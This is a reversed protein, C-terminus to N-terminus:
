SREEQALRQQNAWEARLIQRRTEIDELFAYVGAARDLYRIRQETPRAPDLAITMNNSFESFAHDVFCRWTPDNEQLRELLRTNADV